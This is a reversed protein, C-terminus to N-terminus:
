LTEPLGFVAFGGGSFMSGFDGVALLGDAHIALGWGGHDEEGELLPASRAILNLECPDRFELIMDKRLLVVQQLRQVYTVRRVEAKKLSVTAGVQATAIDVLSLFCRERFRGLVVLRDDPLLAAQLPDFPVAIAVLPVLQPTQLVVIEGTISKHGSIVSILAFAREGSDTAIVKRPTKVVGHGVLWEGAQEGSRGEYLAVWHRGQHSGCGIFREWGCSAVDRMLQEPLTMVVEGTALDRITAEGHSSTALLRGCSELLAVAHPPEKRAEKVAWVESWDSTNLCILNRRKITKGGFRGDFGGVVVLQQANQTFQLDFIRMPEPQSTADFVSDLKIERVPM